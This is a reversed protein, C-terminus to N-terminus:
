RRKLNSSPPTAGPANQVGEFPPLWALDEPLISETSVIQYVVHDKATLKEYYTGDTDTACMWNRKSTDVYPVGDFEPANDLPGSHICAYRQHSEILEPHRALFTAKRISGALGIFRSANPDQHQIANIIQAQDLVDGSLEFLADKLQQSLCEKM